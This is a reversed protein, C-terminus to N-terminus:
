PFDIAEVVCIQVSYENWLPAAATPFSCECISYKQDDVKHKFQNADEMQFEFIKSWNNRLDINEKVDCARQPMIQLRPKQATRIGSSNRTNNNNKSRWWWISKWTSAMSTIFLVNARHTWNKWRRKEVIRRRVGVLWYTHHVRQLHSIIQMESTVIIDFESSFHTTSVFIDSILLRNPIQNTHRVHLLAATCFAVVHQILFCNFQSFCDVM